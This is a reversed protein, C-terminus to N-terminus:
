PKRRELTNIEMLYGLASEALLMEKLRQLGDGRALEAKLEEITTGFEEAKEAIRNDVDRQDVEIGEQKAIQKLILMLRIRDCAAQWTTSELDVGEEGDVALEDKVFGGPIDFSVLELLRLSIQDRPNKDSEGNFLTNLDPLDFEPMPYFRVMASFDRGKNFQIKEVEAQGLVEVGSEKVAERGFRQAVQRTLQESIEKQFRKEIVRQLVKGPRFGPLQARRYGALIDKYDDALESWDASIALCYFGDDSTHQQWKM